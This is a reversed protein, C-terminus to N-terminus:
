VSSTYIDDMPSCNDKAPLGVRVVMVELPSFQELSSSYLRQVSDLTISAKGAISKFAGTGIVPFQYHIGEYVRGIYRM